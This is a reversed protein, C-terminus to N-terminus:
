TSLMWWNSLTSFVRSASPLLYLMKLQITDLAVLITLNEVFMEQRLALGNQAHSWIQTGRPARGWRRESPEVAGRWCPDRTAWVPLPRWMKYVKGLLNLKFLSFFNNTALVPPSILVKNQGEEKVMWVLNHSNLHNKGVTLWLQLLEHSWDSVWFTHIAFNSYQDWVLIQSWNCGKLIAM